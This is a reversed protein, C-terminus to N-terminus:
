DLGHDPGHVLLGALGATTEFLRPWDPRFEPCGGFGPPAWAVAPDLRPAVRALATLHGPLAALHGPRALSQNQVAAKGCDPWATPLFAQALGAAALAPGVPRKPDSIGVMPVQSIESM